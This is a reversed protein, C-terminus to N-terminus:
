RQKRLAKLARDLAREAEARRGDRLYLLALELRPEVADPERTLRAVLAAEEEGSRHKEAMEEVAALQRKASVIDPPNEGKGRAFLEQIRLRLEMARDGYQALAAQEEPAKAACGGALALAIVCAGLRARM